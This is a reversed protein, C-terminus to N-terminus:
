TVQAGPQFTEVKSRIAAVLPGSGHAEAGAQAADWEPASMRIVANPFVLAGKADILGGVHDGHAHSILIDTVQAPDVGAARLSGVLVADLFPTRRDYILGVTTARAKALRRAALNPVYGLDAIAAQVAEITAAGARGAGNIVNSVTM